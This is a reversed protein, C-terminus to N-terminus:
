SYHIGCETRNMGRWRGAREDEHMNTPTTLPEDGISRYGLDYLHNYILKNEFTYKWVESYTLNALPNIKLRQQSDMEFIPMKARTLAQDRRRGTIWATAQQERLGRQLPEIKTLYHFKDINKQWLSEGYLKSFEERTKVYRPMYINLNPKYLFIVRDIFNLTEPFHYLTDLFIIPLTKRPKIKRYITDLVIIGNVSFSTAQVLGSPICNICWQLIEMPSSTEFKQNLKELNKPTRLSFSFM